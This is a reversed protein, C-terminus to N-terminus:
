GVHEPFGTPIERKSLESLSETRKEEKGQETTKFLRQNAARKLDVVCSHLVGM